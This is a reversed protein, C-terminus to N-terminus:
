LMLELLLPNVRGGDRRCPATKEAHHAPSIQFGAQMLRRGGEGRRRILWNRKRLRGETSFQNLALAVMKFGQRFAHRRTDQARIGASVKLKGVMFPQLDGPHRRVRERASAPARGDVRFVAGSEHFHLLLGHGGALGEVQFAPQLLRSSLNGPGVERGRHFGLIRFPAPAHNKAQQIQGLPFVGDLLDLARLPEVADAYQGAADGMVQVVREGGDQHTQVHQSAAARFLGSQQVSELAAGPVPGPHDFLEHRKGLTGLTFPHGDLQPVQELLHFFDDAVGEGLVDPELDVAAVLNGHDHAVGGLQLLHDDVEADVGTVGHGVAPHQRHLQIGLLHVVHKGAGHGPGPRAFEHDDLDAVGAQADGRFDNVMDEVRKECGLRRVLARPQAQGRHDANHLAVLAEDLDIGLRALAGGKGNIQGGVPGAMVGLEEPFGARLKGAVAFGDEKHVVLGDDAFHHHFHQLPQSELQHHRHIAGVAQDLGHLVQGLQLRDDAVHVHRVHVSQSQHMREPADLRSQGGDNDAATQVLRDFVLQVGEPLCTGQLFRERFRLQHFGQFLHQERAALAATGGWM